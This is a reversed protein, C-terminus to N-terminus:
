TRLRMGMARMPAKIKSCSNWMRIFEQELRKCIKMASTILVDDCSKAQSVWNLSGTLGVATLRAGNPRLERQSEYGDIICFKHHMMCERTPHLLSPPLKRVLMYESYREVLKTLNKECILRIRVGRNAASKIAEGIPDSSMAYIAIDISVEARDIYKILLLIHRNFCHFVDCRFSLDTHPGWCKQLDKCTVFLVDSVERNVCDEQYEKLLKQYHKAYQRPEHYFLKLFKIVYYLM